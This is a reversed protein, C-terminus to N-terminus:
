TAEPPPEQPNKIIVEVPKEVPPRNDSAYGRKIMDDQNDPNNIWNMFKAPDNNFSRREASPLEAFMSEGAKVMDLAEKFDIGTADDYQAEFQNRHTIVGTKQFKNVIYNINCENRMSQKTLTQPFEKEPLKTKPGYATLILTKTAM